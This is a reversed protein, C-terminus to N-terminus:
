IAPHHPYYGPQISILTTLYASFDYIVMALPFSLTQQFVSPGLALKM